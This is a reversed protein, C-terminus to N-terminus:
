YCSKFKLKTQQETLDPDLSQNSNTFHGFLNSPLIGIEVLNFGHFVISKQHDRDPRTWVPSFLFVISFHSWLPPNYGPYIVKSRTRYSVTIPLCACVHNIVMITHNKFGKMRFIAIEPNIYTEKTGEMKKKKQPPTSFIHYSHQKKIGTM